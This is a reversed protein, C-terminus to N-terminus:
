GTQKEQKKSRCKLPEYSQEQVGGDFLIEPGRM